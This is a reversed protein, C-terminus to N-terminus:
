HHLSVIIERTSLSFLKRYKLYATLFDNAFLTLAGILEYKLMFLNMLLRFPLLNVLLTDCQSNNEFIQSVRILFLFLFVLIFM